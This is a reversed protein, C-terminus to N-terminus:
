EPLRRWLKLIEESAGISELFKIMKSHLREAVEHKEQYLNKTQTPDTKLHYLEPEIKRGLEDTGSVDSRVALLAWEKSTVTM